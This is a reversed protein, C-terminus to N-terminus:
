ECFKCRNLEGVLSKSKISNKIFNTKSNDSYSINKVNAVTIILNGEIINYYAILSETGIQNFNNLVTGNNNYYIMGEKNYIDLNEDTMYYKKILSISIIDLVEKKVNDVSYITTKLVDGKSDLFNIQKCNMSVEQEKIKVIEDKTNAITCVLNKNQDVVVGGSFNLIDNFCLGFQFDADVGFRGLYEYSGSESISFKFIDSYCEFDICDGTIIFMINDEKIVQRITISDTIFSDKNLLYINNSGKNFRYNTQSNSMYQFLLTLCILIIFHKM